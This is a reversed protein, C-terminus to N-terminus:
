ALRFWRELRFVDSVLLRPDLYLARVDATDVEEGLCEQHGRDHSHLHAVCGTVRVERTVYM